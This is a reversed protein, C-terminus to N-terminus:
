APIQLRDLRRLQRVSGVEGAISRATRAHQAADDRDGVALHIIALDCHLSAAARRFTSDMGALAVTLSDLSPRATLGASAGGLGTASGDASRAPAASAMTGVVSGSTNARVTAATTSPM